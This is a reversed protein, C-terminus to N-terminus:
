QHMTHLFKVDSKGRRPDQFWLFKNEQSKLQRVSYLFGGFTGLRDLLLPTAMALIAGNGFKSGYNNNCYSQLAKRSVTVAM